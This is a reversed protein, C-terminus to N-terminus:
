FNSSYLLLHILYISSFTEEKYNSNSYKLSIIEELLLLLLLKFFTIIM